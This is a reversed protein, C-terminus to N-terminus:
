LWSELTDRIGADDPPTSRRAAFISCDGRRKILECRDRVSLDAWSECMAEWQKDSFSYEDLIPYDDLADALDNALAVADANSPHVAIWEVWGCAWHNESVIQVTRTDETPHDASVKDLAAFATEFNHNTLLDSDRNRSLFVLWGEWTAGLYSSPRIWPKPAYRSM